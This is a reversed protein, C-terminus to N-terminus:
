GARASGRSCVIANTPLMPLSIPTVWKACLEIVRTLSDPKSDSKISVTGLNEPSIQVLFDEAPLATQEEWLAAAEAMSTLRKQFILVSTATVIVLLVAMSITLLSILLPSISGREEAVIQRRSPRKM